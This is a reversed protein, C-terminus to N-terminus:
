RHNWWSGFQGIIAGIIGIILCAFSIGSASNNKGIAVLSAVAGFIIAIWSVLEILKWKKNTQEILIPSQNQNAMPNGCFPCSAAKDSIDKDCESCKILAM